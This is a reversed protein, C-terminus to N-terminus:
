VVPHVFPLENVCVLGEDTGTDAMLCLTRDDTVVFHNPYHKHNWFNPQNLEWGHELLWQTQVVGTLYHRNKKNDKVGGNTILNQVCQKLQENLENTTKTM